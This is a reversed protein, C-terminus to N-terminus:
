KKNKVLDFGMKKAQARMSAIAKKNEETNREAIEDTFDKFTGKKINVCFMTNDDADRVSLCEEGEVRDNPIIYMGKKELLGMLLHIRRCKDPKFMENFLLKQFRPELDYFELEKSICVEKGEVLVFVDVEQDNLDMDAEDDYIEDLFDYCGFDVASKLVVGSDPDSAISKKTGTYNEAYLEVIEKIMPNADLFAQLQKNPKKM